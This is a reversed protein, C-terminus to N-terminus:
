RRPPRILVDLLRDLIREAAERRTRHPSYMAVFILTIMLIIILMLPLWLVGAIVLVPGLAAHLVATVVGVIWAGPALWRAM